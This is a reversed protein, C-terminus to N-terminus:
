QQYDVIIRPKLYLEDSSESNKIIKYTIPSVTQIMHMVEEISEDIFTATYKLDYLKPSMIEFTVNYRRAIIRLAEKIPTDLLRLQNKTWSTYTGPVIERVVIKNTNKFYVAQQAEELIMIEQDPTSIQIEGEELTAEIRDEDPYSFINFKTGTASIFMNDFDVIFPKEPNTKVVFYAEGSLEVIRDHINYNSNYKLTSGSNLYVLTSDPLYINAKQGNNTVISSESVLSQSITSKGYFWPLLGGIAVLCSIVAAALLIRFNNKKLIVVNSHLNERLNLNKSIELWANETKYHEFKTKIGIDHWLENEKDFLLRNAPSKELWVKLIYTEEDSIDKALFRIILQKYYFQDKM